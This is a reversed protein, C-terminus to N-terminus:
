DREIGIRATMGAATHTPTGRTILGIFLTSAGAVSKVPLNLNRLTAIRCGGIDIWDATEVPIIGLINDANVDTIGATANIAGLSVNADLIVVWLAIGLDDKDNLVISQIIGEGDVKRFAGTVVTPIALVDNAAYIATDLVFTVNIIATDKVAETLLVGNIDCALEGAQQNDALVQRTAKYKIPIM